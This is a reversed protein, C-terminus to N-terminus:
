RVLVTTGTGDATLLVSDGTYSVSFAAQGDESRVRADAFQGSVANAQVVTFVTGASPVYGDTLRVSIAAGGLSVTGDGLTLHDHTGPSVGGLEVMLGAGSSFTVSETALTGRVALDGDAVLTAGTYAKDGTLKVLGMGEKTVGFAGAMAGAFDTRGGISATLTASRELTITGSFVASVTGTSGLCSQGASHNDTVRIDRALTFSGGALLAVDPDVADEQFTMATGSTGTPLTFNSGAETFKPLYFRKGAHLTGQSVAVQLGESLDTDADFDAPRTWTGSSALWIGNKKNPNQKMTLLVRDGEALAVGDITQLTSYGVESGNFVARVPALPTVVDGLLVASSGSGLASANGLLLTGSRVAAVGAHTNTGALEVTGAPTDRSGGHIVVPVRHTTASVDQLVGTFRVTSGAPSRLRLQPVRGLTAHGELYFPGNFTVTGSNAALAGLESVGNNYYNNGINALVRIPADIRTVGAGALLASLIGQSSSNWYGVGVPLSNNAGIASAHALVVIGADAMLAVNGDGGTAPSVVTGNGALVFRFRYDDPTANQVVIAGGNIGTTSSNKQAGGQITGGLGGSLTVVGGGQPLNSNGNNLTFMKGLSSFTLPTSCTGTNWNNFSLSTNNASDVQMPNTGLRSFQTYGELTIGGNELEFSGLFGTSSGGRLTFGSAGTKRIVIGAASSLDLNSNYETFGSTNMNWDQSAGAVIAGHLRQGASSNVVIGGAGITLATVGTGRQVTITQGGTGFTLSNIAGNAAWASDYTPTYQASTGFTIDATGDSPPLGETWKTVDSWNGNVASTWTYPGAAAPGAALLAAASSIALVSLQLGPRSGSGFVRRPIGFSGHTTRMQKEKKM